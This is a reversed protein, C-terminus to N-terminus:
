PSPSAAPPPLLQATATGRGLAQLGRHSRHGHARSPAGRNTGDKRVTIAWIEAHLSGLLNGGCRAQAQNERLFTAQAWPGAGSDIKTALISMVYGLGQMLELCRLLLAFSPQLWSTWRSTPRAFTIERVGSAFDM